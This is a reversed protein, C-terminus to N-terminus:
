SHTTPSALRGDDIPIHVRYNSEDLIGVEESDLIFQANVYSDQLPTMRRLHPSVSESKPEGTDSDTFTTKFLQSLREGSFFSALGASYHPLWGDVAADWVIGAHVTCYIPVFRELVQVLTTLKRSIRSIQVQYAPDTSYGGFSWVVSVDLVGTFPDFQSAPPIFIQETEREFVKNSILRVPLMTGKMKYLRMLWPVVAKLDDWVLWDPLEPFNLDACYAAVVGPERLQPFDKISDIKNWIVDLGSGVLESFGFIHGNSVIAVVIVVKYGTPVTLGSFSGRLLLDNLGYVQTVDYEYVTEMVKGSGHAGYAQNLKGQGLVFAALTRDINHTVDVLAHDLVVRWTDNASHGYDHVFSLSVGNTLYTPFSSVDGSGSGLLTGQGTQNGAGDFPALRMEWSYTEGHEEADKGRFAEPLLKPFRNAYERPSTRPYAM